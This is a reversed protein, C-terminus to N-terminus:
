KGGQNSGGVWKPHGLDIVIANVLSTLNPNVFLHYRSEFFNCDYILENSLYGASPDLLAIGGILLRWENDKLTRIDITVHLSSVDSNKLNHNCSFCWILM